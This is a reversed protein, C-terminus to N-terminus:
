NDDGAEELEQANHEGMREFDEEEEFEQEEQEIFTNNASDQPPGFSNLIPAPHLGFYLIFAIIPIAAAGESFSLSIGARRSNEPIPGFLVNKILRLMYAASCIIGVGGILAFFPFSSYFFGQLILFEGVFGVTCPVSVAAIGVFGFIAAYIPNTSVFASYQKINTSGTWKQVIGSLFFLGGATLGHGVLMVAIGANVVDNFCFLGAVALSLHSMSSFALLKKVNTQRLALIASYLMSLLALVIFYIDYHSTQLISGFIQIIWVAFGFVGVKAMAGSLVASLPYPAESYTIGQWSHFPFIPTKVAFALSFALLLSLQTSIPLVRLTETLININDSGAKIMLYWAGFLLPVSGILTYLTFVIVARRRKLGGHLAMLIAAPLVMAEFFFLFQVINQASLFAGIITGELVLLGITFKKIEFGPMGKFYAYALLSLLTALWAMWLSLGYGYLSFEVDIGLISFWAYSPTQQGGLMVLATALVFPVATCFLGIRFSSNVDRSSAALMLCSFVFPLILLLSILM